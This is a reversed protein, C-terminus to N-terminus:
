ISPFIKQYTDNRAASIGHIYFYKDRLEVPCGAQLQNRFKTFGETVKDYPLELSLSLTNSSPSFWAIVSSKMREDAPDIGTHKLWFDASVCVNVPPRYTLDSLPGLNDVYELHELTRSGDLNWTPYEEIHRKFSLIWQAKTNNDPKGFHDVLEKRLLKARVIAQKDTEWLSLNLTPQSHTVNVGYTDLFKQLIKFSHVAGKTKMSQSASDRTYQTYCINQPHM